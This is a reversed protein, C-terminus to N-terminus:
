HDDGRRLRDIIADIRRRADARDTMAHFPGGRGVTWPLLVDFDLDKMLELSALYAERDSSDPLLAAIWEGGRIYVTDASFLCRHSGTDWLYATSGSTHGPIPIVEFDDDLRHREAFTAEVPCTESVAAREKEHCILPAAFAAAAEAHGYSAEHGHGLYHRAVGGLKEVTMVEKALSATSYILLNGSKRRLLFARLEISQDFSLLSPSSVHVGPIVDQM